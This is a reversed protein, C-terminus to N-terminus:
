WALASAVTNCFEVYNYKLVWRRFSPAPGAWLLILALLKALLYWLLCRLCLIATVTRIHPCYSM